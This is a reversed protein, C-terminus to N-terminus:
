NTQRLVLSYNQGSWIPTGMINENKHFSINSKFNEDEAGSEKFNINMTDFNKTFDNNKASVLNISAYLGKRIMTEHLSRLIGESSSVLNMEGNVKELYNIFLIIDGSLSIKNSIVKDSNVFREFSYLFEGRESESVFKRIPFGTRDNDLYIPDENNQPQDFRLVENKIVWQHKQGCIIQGDFIRNTLLNGPLEWIENEVKCIPCM